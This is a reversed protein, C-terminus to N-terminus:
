AVFSRHFIKPKMMSKTLPVTLEDMVVSPGGYLFWFTLFVCYM